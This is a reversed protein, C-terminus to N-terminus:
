NSIRSLLLCIFRNYGQEYESNFLACLKALRLIENLTNSEYFIKQMETKLVEVGKQLFLVAEEKLKFRHLFSEKIEKILTKKDGKNLASDQILSIHEFALLTFPIITEHKSLSLTKLDGKNELFQNGHDHKRRKYLLKENVHAIKGILSIQAMIM